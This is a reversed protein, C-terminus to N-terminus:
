YGRSGAGLRPTSGMPGNSDNTAKKLPNERQAEKPYTMPSSFRADNEPPLILEEQYTPPKIQTDTTWCGMCFLFLGNLFTKGVWKGRM